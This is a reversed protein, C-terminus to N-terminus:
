VDARRVHTESETTLLEFAIGDHEHQSHKESGTFHRVIAAILASRPLTTLLDPDAKLSGCPFSARM